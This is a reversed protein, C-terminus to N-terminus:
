QRTLAEKLLRRARSVRSKVTGVPIELVSAIEGYPLEHLWALGVVEALGQPLSRLAGLLEDVGTAMAVLDAPDAADDVLCEVEEDLPATPIKRRRTHTWIQRKAIGLLWTLIRSDGRFAPASRWCGLWVDASIEEADGRDDSRALVFAFVVASYRQYLEAFAREDGDGVAELLEADRDAETDAALTLHSGACWTQM